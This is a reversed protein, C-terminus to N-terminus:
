SASATSIAGPALEGLRAVVMSDTAEIVTTGAGMYRISRTLSRPATSRPAARCTNSAPPCCSCRARTASPSARSTSCPSTRRSAKAKRIRAPAGSRFRIQVNGVPAAKQRLVFDSRWLTGAHLEAFQSFNPSGRPGHARHVARTRPLCAGHTEDLQVTHTGPELDDFHFRGNEDTVGYRGDELYVRVNAVFSTPRSFRM